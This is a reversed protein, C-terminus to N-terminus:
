CGRPLTTTPHSPSITVTRMLKHLGNCLAGTSLDAFNHNKVSELVATLGRQALSNAPDHTSHQWAFHCPSGDNGRQSPQQCDLTDAASCAGWGLAPGACAAM